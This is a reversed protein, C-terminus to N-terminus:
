SPGSRVLAGVFQKHNWVVVFNIWPQKKTTKKQKLLFCKKPFSFFDEEEKEAKRLKDNPLYVQEVIM